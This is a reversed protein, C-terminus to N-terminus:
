TWNRQSSTDCADLVSLGERHVPSPVFSRIDLCTDCWAARALDACRTDRVAWRGTSAASNSKLIGDAPIENTPLCAPRPQKPLGTSFSGLSCLGSQSATIKPAWKQGRHIKNLFPPITSILFRQLSVSLIYASQAPVSSFIFTVALFAWFNYNSRLLAVRGKGRTSYSGLTAPTSFSVHHCRYKM